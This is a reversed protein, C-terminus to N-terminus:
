RSLMKLLLENWMDVPGPLCWHVCDHPFQVREGAPHGYVDPHGDARMLMAATADLLKMGARSRAAREFEKAQAKYMEQEVWEFRAEWARVPRTRGCSGGEDWRGNEFHSPSVTRLFTTGAFGGGPVKDLAKFASRFAARHANYISLSTLNLSAVCYNCAIPQGNRYYISPRTFWTGSSIILYDFAAIRAAWNDDAEDLSVHWLGGVAWKEDAMRYKVLFPSWFISITFNYASYFYRKNEDRTISVDEPLAVKSLLCILSQMHNRAISDGVFAMSKGRVLEFFRAPDFRPLECGAPKWRWRLFETDPRGHKFCNQHEQIVTCSTSTYYYPAAEYPDLIWEGKLLDCEQGEERPKSDDNGGNGNSSNKSDAAAAAPITTTNASPPHPPPPPLPLSAPPSSSTTPLPSSIPPPPPTPLSSYSTPLPSSIPPPLSSSSTTTTPLPSSPPPSNIPCSSSSSSCNYNLLLPVHRYSLHFIALLSLLFASLSLLNPFTKLHGIQRLSFSSLPHSKM